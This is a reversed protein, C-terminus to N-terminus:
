RGATELDSCHSWRQESIVADRLQEVVGEGETYLDLLCLRQGDSDLLSLTVYRCGGPMVQGDSGLLQGLERQSECVPVTQLANAASYGLCIASAAILTPRLM